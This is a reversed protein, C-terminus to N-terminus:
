ALTSPMKNTMETIAPLSAVSPELSNRLQDQRVGGHPRRWIGSCKALCVVLAETILTLVTTALLQFAASREGQNKAARRKSRLHDSIEKVSHLMQIIVNAFCYSSMNELGAPQGMEAQEPGEAAVTAAQEANGEIGEGVDPSTARAEDGEDGKKSTQGPEATSTVTQATEVAINKAALIEPHEEANRKKPSDLPAEITPASIRSTSAATSPATSRNPAQIQGGNNPLFPGLPKTETPQARSIQARKPPPAVPVKIARM